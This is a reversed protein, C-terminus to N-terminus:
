RQIEWSLHPRIRLQYHCGNCLRATLAHPCVCWVCAFFFLSWSIVSLFIPKLQWQHCKESKVGVSKHVREDTSPTVPVCTTLCGSSMFWLVDWLYLGFVCTQHAQTVSHAIDGSPTNLGPSYLHKLAKILHAFRVGFSSQLAAHNCVLDNNYNWFCTLAEAHRNSINPKRHFQFLSNVKLCM